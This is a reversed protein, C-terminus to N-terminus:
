CKQVTLNHKKLKTQNALQYMIKILMNRKFRDYEQKRLNKRAKFRLYFMRFFRTIKKVFSAEKYSNTLEKVNRYNNLEQSNIKGKNILRELTATEEEEAIEALRHLEKTNQNDPEANILFSMEGYYQTLVPRYDIDKNKESLEKLRTIVAQMIFIKASQYTM